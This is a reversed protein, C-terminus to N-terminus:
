QIKYINNNKELLKHSRGVHYFSCIACKYAIAKKIQKDQENLKKAIAIAEKDTNYKKKYVKEGNINKYCQNTDTKPISKM